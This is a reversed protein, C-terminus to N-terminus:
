RCIIIYTANDTRFAGKLEKLARLADFEDSCCFIDVYCSNYEPYTHIAFHSESLVYAFTYGSPEFQHGTTAVVNLNLNSICIDLVPRGSSLFLLLDKDFIDYLNVILHTGVCRNDISVLSAM